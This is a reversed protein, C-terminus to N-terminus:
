WGSRRRVKFSSSDHTEDDGHSGDEFSGDGGDDGMDGRMGLTHMDEM